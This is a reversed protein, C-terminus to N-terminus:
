YRVHLTDTSEEDKRTTQQKRKEHTNWQQYKGADGPSEDRGNQKAKM